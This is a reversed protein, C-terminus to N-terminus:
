PPIGNTENQLWKKTTGFHKEHIFSHTIGKRPKRNLKTEVFKHLKKM